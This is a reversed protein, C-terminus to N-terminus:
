RLSIRATGEIRTPLFLGQGTASITGTQVSDIDARITFQGERKAAIAREVKKLLDNFDDQFNQELSSAILETIGPANALDLILDGGTVDTTGSISLDQFRVVRSNQKNMPKATLWVTGKAIEGRKGQPHAAFNVGVAMRGNKTGYITVRKFSAIVPGIGPVAIPQAARKTLAKMLVPELEKYSAVVPIVFAVRGAKNQMPTMSPLPTPEPADPKNGVFSETVAEMGLRLRMTRGDVDYGGYHLATPKVRLWVPPNERNLSLVTFASAWGEQVKQRIGLKKLEKPLDRELRAIVPKLKADAQSTFDIRQGLIEAHPANTWDYKLDVTGHPTWNKDLDLHIVAHAMADATATEQAIIGGINEAHLVAHLPIAARITQGSGSLRLKGRTVTGVIRCKIRPTKVTAIGLDIGKSAVCTQGPKDISWLKRPIDRELAAALSDLKATVPVAIQSPASKVTIPTTVRPPAENKPSGSCAALLSLSALAPLTVRM